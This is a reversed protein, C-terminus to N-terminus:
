RFHPSSSRGTPGSSTGFPPDPVTMLVDVSAAIKQAHFFTPDGVFEVFNVDIEGTHM